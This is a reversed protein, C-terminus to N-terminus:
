DLQRRHVGARELIEAFTTSAAHLEVTQKRADFTARQPKAVARADFAPWKAPDVDAAVRRM